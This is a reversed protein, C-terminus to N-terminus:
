LYTLGEPDVPNLAGAAHPFQISVQARLALTDM